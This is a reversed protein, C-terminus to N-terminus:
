LKLEVALREPGLTLAELINLGQGEAWPEKDFEGVAQLERLLHANCLAHDVNELTDYARWPDHVVVGGELEPVASRPEGARYFTHTLTSATHLWRTAGAIRLGTEDLRRM